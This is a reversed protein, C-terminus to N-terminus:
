KFTLHAWSSLQKTWNLLSRLCAGLLIAVDALSHKAVTWCVSFVLVDVMRVQTTRRLM